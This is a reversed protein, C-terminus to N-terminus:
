RVAGTFDGEGFPGLVVATRPAGLVRRAAAGVEDVTVADIRALLEDVTLVEHHLLLSRGIRSMRAASDELALLTEARLHGQALDLERGTIGDAVLRDLEVNILELVNGVRSPTTGVYVALSGTDEYAVRDSYVSYALGRRERIEQFLRSSVGGGLVHDLAALAWRDPDHRDPARAGVVLHAQETARPVVVSGEGSGDPPVRQPPSGGAEGAFRDEIGAAVRDHDLAGAAAVVMNAPRYHEGFFRRVHGAAMSVISDQTGLVERGLPHGPYLAAAFRDYVLDAPEDGHMLIEELIVQREAELEDPRLAPSWMIDCLVDLGLDLHEALLRVYFATYEKTTFANMDGGVADVAEAIARATRTPTGKFLLHELFHSAGVEGPHEDRSGTGVWFGTTVSRVDPMAETVLRLGCALESTRILRDAGAAAVGTEGAAVVAAGEAERPGVHAVVAPV